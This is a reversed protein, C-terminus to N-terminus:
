GRRPDRGAPRPRDRARAARPAAPRLVGPEASVSMRPSRPSRASASACALAIPNLREGHCASCPQPERAYWENWWCSRAPKSRTSAPADRGRHRLLERVLRAQLQLLVPAPRAGCLEQRLVPLRAQHLVGHVRSRTRRGAARAGPGQRLDLAARWGTACRQRPARRRGEVQPWAAARHQAGQLAGPAAVACHAAARRGRAAAPLGEQAAWKRWTPTTARARWRGAARVAGIRKGSTTACCARPSRTPARRSSRRRRLGPLAAHRAERVAPAPLPPDRHADRSHEQPRRPQHAARHRGHAPHRLDRGRGARAAPQVFQRAYANLSELYRRQGENFLIDFALTSKGSGSVGTVVTFRDRPIEVDINKLNHERANRIVVAPATPTRRRRLGRAARRGAAAAAAAAGADAGAAYAALAQGTIRHARPACSSRAHRDGRSRRRADGGEPGLDILWDAAGIVDLNHEIVLLSHGAVLLKRFARMLKAVDEFHLGPPPSTSCSCSAATRSAALARHRCRGPPRRAEAAAGRRGLADAGAPGAAPVGPGCRGAAGPAAACGRTDAFFAVAETVTLECCRRSTPPPRGRRRAETGASTATAGATATPAACTCTPCSSCRSTSSATAAAPPAAATAPTSASLARRHVQAGAAEPRRRVARPHRRLRRRLQRPQLAHHPRHTVPRGSWM